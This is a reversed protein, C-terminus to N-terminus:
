QSASSEQNTQTSVDPQPPSPPVEALTYNESPFVADSISVVDAKPDAEGQFTVEDVHTHEDVRSVETQIAPEAQPEVEVAPEQQNSKYAESPDGKEFNMNMKIKVRGNGEITVCISCLGVVYNERQFYDSFTAAQQLSCFKKGNNPYSLIISGLKGGESSDFELSLDITKDEIKVGAHTVSNVYQDNSSFTMQGLPIESSYPPGSFQDLCNGETIFNFKEGANAYGLHVCHLSIFVFLICQPVM